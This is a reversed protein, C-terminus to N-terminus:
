SRSAFVNYIAVWILAVFWGFGYSELLGVCFSGWSIRTFGPLRRPWAQYMAHAPFLVDRSMRAVVRLRLAVGCCVDRETVVGVLKKDKTDAVVPACGCGSDRMARAAHVATDKPTCCPSAEIPTMVDKCCSM